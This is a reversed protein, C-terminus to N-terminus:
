GRGLIPADFRRCMDVAAVVDNKTRPIVVGIPLQRFVSADAAYLARSGRDFHVEGQVVRRLERELDAAPTTVTTKKAVAM